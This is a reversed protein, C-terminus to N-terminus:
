WFYYWGSSGAMIYSTTTKHSEVHGDSYALNMGPDDKKEPFPKGMTKDYTSGSWGEASSHASKWGFNGALAQDTVVVDKSSGAVMPPGTKSANNSWKWIFRWTNDTTGVLGAYLDFGIWYGSNGASVTSVYFYKALDKERQTYMDETKPPRVDLGPNDGVALDNRRKLPCFLVQGQKGAVYSYIATTVESTKKNVDVDAWSPFTMTREIYKGDNGSAHAILGLVVGKQNNRCVSMRALRKAKNLAPMLISMLLAIISIVVLLEVLTFGRRKSM